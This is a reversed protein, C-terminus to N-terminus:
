PRGGTAPTHRRRVAKWIGGTLEAADMHQTMFIGTIVDGELRGVFATRLRCGCYPDIYPDMQGTIRGYSSRVFAITLRESQTIPAPYTGPPLKGPPFAAYTMIVYGVATDRGEQLHFQLAGSRKPGSTTEYSGEWFGALRSLDAPAADVPVYDPKSSCAGALVGALAAAM